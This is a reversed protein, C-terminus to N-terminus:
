FALDNDVDEPKVYVPLPDNNLEQVNKYVYIHKGVLTIKGDKSISMNGVIDVINNETVQKDIFAKADMYCYVLFVFVNEKEEENSDVVRVAIRTYEVGKLIQEVTGVVNFGRNRAYSVPIGMLRFAPKKASSAM